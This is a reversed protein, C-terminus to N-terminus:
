KQEVSVQTVSSVQGAQIQLAYNNGADITAINGPFTTGDDMLYVVAAEGQALSVQTNFVWDAFAIGNMGNSDDYDVALENQITNQNSTINYAWLSTPVTVGRLTISSVTVAKSGTNQVVFATTGNGQYAAASDANVWSHVNSVKVSESQTNTQFMSGGFFIVGAGLVVSAILIILAAIATFLRVTEIRGRTLEGNEARSYLHVKTLPHAIIERTSGDGKQVHRQVIKLVKSQFLEPSAGDKLLVFNNANTQTWDAFRDWGLRTMYNWPILYQFQFDTNSPLAKLVGTVTFSDNDNVIVTEGVCDTKGFLKIALPETLVIGFDNTLATRNGGHMPFDFMSLFSPDAFM